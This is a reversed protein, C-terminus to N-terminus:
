QLMAVENEFDRMQEQSGNGNEMLFVGCIMSDQALILRKLTFKGFSYFGAYGPIAGGFIWLTGYLDVWGATGMRNKPFSNIDASINAQYGGSIWTWFTGNFQWLDNLLGTKSHKTISAFM